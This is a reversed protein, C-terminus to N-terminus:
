VRIGAAARLVPTASTDTIRLRGSELMSDACALCEDGELSLLTKSPGTARDIQIGCLTFQGVGGENESICVHAKPRGQLKFKWYKM